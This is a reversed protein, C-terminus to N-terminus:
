LQLPDSMLEAAPLAQRTMQVFGNEPFVFHDSPFIAVTAHPDRARVHALPLFVGALTDRNSPQAVLVGQARGCHQQLAERHHPRAVVTVKRWPASLQDARDLTHQLMSRTGVFTCYQKPKRHGMYRQIFSRTRRGEGAALIVSWLNGESSAKM